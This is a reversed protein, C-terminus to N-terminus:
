AAGSETFISKRIKPNKTTPNYDTIEWICNVSVSRCVKFRMIGYSLSLKFFIRASDVIKRAFFAFSTSCIHRFAWQDLLKSLQECKCEVYVFSIVWGHRISQRCERWSKPKESDSM